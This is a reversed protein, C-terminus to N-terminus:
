CELEERIAMQAQAIDLNGVYLARGIVVGILGPYVAATRALRRVDEIGGVGGSAIVEIGTELIGELLETNPGELTGDRAIDTVLVRRGGESLIEAAMEDARIDTQEIWGRTAVFGDRCDLGVVVAEKFHELLRRRLSPLEVASTGVVVRRVGQSLLTSVDEYNRIGGGVQLPIGQGAMRAIPSANPRSGHRAGDLDVVHVLPAGSRWWREAVAVPDDSFVEERSFDGRLLRVCRGGRIDVAPYIEM